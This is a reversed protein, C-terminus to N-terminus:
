CRFSGRTARTNIVTEWHKSVKAFFGERGDSKHGESLHALM